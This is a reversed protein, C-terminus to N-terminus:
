YQRQPRCSSTSLKNPPMLRNDFNLASPASSKSQNQARNIFNLTEQVGKQENNDHYKHVLYMITFIVRQRRRTLICFCFYKLHSNIIWQVSQRARYKKKACLFLPGKCVKADSVVSCRCSFCSSSYSFPLMREGTVLGFRRSCL